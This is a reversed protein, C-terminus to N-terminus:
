PWNGTRPNIDLAGGNRCEPSGYVPHTPRYIRLWTARAIFAAYDRTAGLMRAIPRVLQLGRCEALAEEIIGRSHQPEHGLTLLARAIDNRWIPDRNTPRLKRYTFAVLDACTRPSLQLRGPASQRVYGAIGDVNTRGSYAEWEADLRAWDQVSWCRVEVPRGAVNTAVTSFRPEVRSATSVGAMTPLPGYDNPEPAPAASAAPAAALAVLVAAHRLKMRHLM